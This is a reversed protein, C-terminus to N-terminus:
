KVKRTEKLNAFLGLAPQLPLPIATSLDTATATTLYTATATATATATTLNLTFTKNPPLPLFSTAIQLQAILKSQEVHDGVVEVGCDFPL